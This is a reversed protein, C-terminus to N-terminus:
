PLVAQLAERMAWPHNCRYVDEIRMVHQAVHLIDLWRRVIASLEASARQAEAIEAYGDDASKHRQLDAPRDTYASYFFMPYGSLGRSKDQLEVCTKEVLEITIYTM